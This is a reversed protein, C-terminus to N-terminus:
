QNERQAQQLMLEEVEARDIEGRSNKCVVGALTHLQQQGWSIDAELRYQEREILLQKEDDSIRM